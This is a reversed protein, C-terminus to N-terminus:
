AICSGTDAKADLNVSAFRASVEQATLVFGTDSNDIAAGFVVGLVQGNVDIMPGGSNGQRVAGRVTYVERSVVSTRYIDPGSLEFSERVRAASAIFPGGGPFGLIIADDGTAAPEAVFRLAPVTLEPVKLIAIDIKPDFFAVTADLTDRETEVTVSRTGAVVHANTIVMGKDIAFGSGELAKQCSPAVGRIKLVSPYASQVIASMQLAPDPPDVNTIPTKAFPGLIDPLGSTDLLASFEDPVRRLWSPVVEDVKELVQSGRVAAALEPGASSSVPIALLWAAALVAMVQLITGIFSDVIRGTRSTISSRAARGLIMGAIEGIVVLGVILAVGALLRSRDQDVHSVVHPALLIGAVAGLVVGFFALGSALAGSRWGSMAAILVILAVTFDLWASSNM